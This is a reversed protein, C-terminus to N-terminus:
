PLTSHAMPFSLECGLNELAQGCDINAQWIKPHFLLLEIIVALHLTIFGNISHKGFRSYLAILLETCSALIVM